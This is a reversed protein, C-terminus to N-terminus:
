ISKFMKLHPIGDEDFYEGDGIYSNKLYFAVASDRAHCYMNTYKHNRAYEECYTMLKSGIGNSQIGNKVVVRQMKLNSGEPCLVATAVVDQNMIGVVQIHKREEELEEITFSQGLPKRLIDERLQVANKWETSGHPIIKFETHM